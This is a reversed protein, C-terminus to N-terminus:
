LCEQTLAGADNIGAGAFVHDIQFRIFLLLSTSCKYRGDGVFAVHKGTGQLSQIFQLKKQPLAGAIVSDGLLGVHNGVARATQENDGTVMWVTIGNGQLTSVAIFSESRLEDSLEFFGKLQGDVAFFVVISGSCQLDSVVKKVERIAQASECSVKEEDMLYTMSGIAVTSMDPGQTSPVICKIGLGTFAESCVDVSATSPVTKFATIFEVIARGIIHESDREACGILWLLRAVKFSLEETLSNESPPEVVEIWTSLSTDNGCPQSTSINACEDRLVYMASVGARGQTLTSTKDFVVDTVFAGEEVGEGSKILVGLRAAVGLNGALQYFLTPLYICRITSTAGVQESWLLLRHASILICVFGFHCKNFQGPLPTAIVQAGHCLSM